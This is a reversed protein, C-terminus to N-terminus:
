VAALLVVVGAVSMVLAGRFFPSTEWLHQLNNWM